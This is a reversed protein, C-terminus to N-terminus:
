PAMPHDFEFFAGQVQTKTEKNRKEKVGGKKITHRTKLHKINQKAGSEDGKRGDM